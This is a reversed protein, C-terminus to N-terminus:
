IQTNLIFRRSQVFNLITIDDPVSFCPIVSPINYNLLLYSTSIQRLAENDLEINGGFKKGEIFTKKYKYKINGYQPLYFEFDASYEFDFDNTHINVLFWLFNSKGCGNPGIIINLGECFETKTNRINRYGNLKASKIHFNLM